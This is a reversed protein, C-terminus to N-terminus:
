AKKWKRNTAVVEAPFDGSLFAKLFATTLVIRSGNGTYYYRFPLARFLLIHCWVCRLRRLMRGFLSSRKGQGFSQTLFQPHLSLLLDIKGGQFAKRFSPLVEYEGGEIDMKIFMKEDQLHEQLIFREFTVADVEWHTAESSFLMSSTSNGGCEPNGITITGNGCAIAKNFVTLRSAWDAGSNARVNIDLERYAVPDPEFAYARKAYQSAYLTTPGIWAGIDVYISESSIFDDFIDFTHPEWRGSELLEWFKANCTIAVNFRKENKLISRVPIPEFQDWNNTLYQQLKKILVWCDQPALDLRTGNPLPLVVHGHLYEPDSINANM